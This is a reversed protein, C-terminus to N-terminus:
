AKLRTSRRRLLRADADRRRGRPDLLDPDDAGAQHRRLERREEQPAELHREHEAVQELLDDVRRARDLRGGPARPLRSPLRTGRRREDRCSRSPRSRPSRGRARPPRRPARRSAPPRRRARPTTASRAHERRVRRRERDRLHADSTGLADAQVEEVRDRHQREDLDDPVVLRRVLRERGRPVDASAACARRRRASAGPKTTLRTSVRMVLTSISASSCPLVTSSVSSARQPEPHRHRRRHQELEDARADRVVHELRHVRRVGIAERERRREVSRRPFSSITTAALPPRVTSSIWSATSSASASSIRWSSSSPTTASAASTSVHRSRPAPQGNKRPPM